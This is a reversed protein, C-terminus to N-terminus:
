RGLASSNNGQSLTQSAKERLTGKEGSGELFSRGTPGGALLSHLGHFPILYISSMRIAFYFSLSWQGGAGPGGLAKDGLALGRGEQLNTCLYQGKTGARPSRPPCFEPHTQAHAAVSGSSSLKVM